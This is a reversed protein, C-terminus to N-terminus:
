HTIHKPVEIDPEEFSPQTHVVVRRVETITEIPQGDKGTHVVRDAPKRWGRSMDMLRTLVAPPICGLTLTNVIYRRFEISRLVAEAFDEGTLDESVLQSVEEPADVPAGGTGLFEALSQLKEM